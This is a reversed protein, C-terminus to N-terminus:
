ANMNLLKKWWTKKSAEIAKSWEAKMKEQTREEEELQKRLEAMAEERKQIIEQANKIIKNAENIVREKENIIQDKKTIVQEKESIIQEKEVIAQERKKITAEVEDKKKLEESAVEPPAPLLKMRKDLEEFKLQYMIIGHMLQDREDLWNKMLQDREDLWERSKRDFYELPIVDVRQIEPTKCCGDNEDTEEQFETIEDGKEVEGIQSLLDRHIMWCSFNKGTVKKVKNLRNESILERLSAISRGTARSADCLTVWEDLIVNEAAERTTELQM